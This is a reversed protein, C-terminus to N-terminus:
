SLRPTLWQILWEIVCDCWPYYQIYPLHHQWLESQKAHIILHSMFQCPNPLFCGHSLPYVPWSNAQLYQTFGWIDTLTALSRTLFQLLYQRIVLWFSNKAWNQFTSSISAHEKYCARRRCSLVPHVAIFSTFNVSITPFLTFTDQLMVPGCLFPVWM